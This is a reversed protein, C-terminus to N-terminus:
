LYNWDFPYDCYDHRSFRSAQVVFNGESAGAGAGTSVWRFFWRGGDDPTVDLYYSGTATKGLEVDTGFTYTTKRGYPSLIVAQVTDPDVPNGTASDQFCSTLRVPQGPAIKGPEIM